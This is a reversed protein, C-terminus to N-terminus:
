YAGSSHAGGLRILLSDSVTPVTNLNLRLRRANEVAFAGNGLIAVNQGSMRFAVVKLSTM